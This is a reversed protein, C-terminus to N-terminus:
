DNEAKALNDPVIQYFSQHTPLSKILGFLEDHITWKNSTPDGRLPKPEETINLYELLRSFEEGRIRLGASDSNKLRQIWQYTITKESKDWEKTQNNFTGIAGMWNGAPRGTTADFLLQDQKIHNLAQSRIFQNVAEVQSAMQTKPDDFFGMAQGAKTGLQLMAGMVTNNFFQHKDMLELLSKNGMIYEKKQDLFRQGNNKDVASSLAHALVAPDTTKWDTIGYDDKITKVWAKMNDPPDDLMSQLNSALNANMGMQGPQAQMVDKLYKAANVQQDGNLTRTTGKLAPTLQLGAQNNDINVPENSADDMKILQNRKKRDDESLLSYATIKSTKGARQKNALHEFIADARKNQENADTNQFYQVLLKQLDGKPQFKKGGRQELGRAVLGVNKKISAVVAQPSTFLMQNDHIYQLGKASLHEVNNRFADNGGQVTIGSLLQDIEPKSYVDTFADTNTKYNAVDARQNSDLPNFQWDIIRMNKYMQATDIFNKMHHPKDAWHSNTSGVGLGNEELFAKWLTEDIMTNSIAQRLDKDEAVESWNPEKQLNKIMSTLIAEKPRSKKLRMLFDARGALKKAYRDSSQIDKWYDGSVTPSKRVTAMLQKRGKLEPVIAKFGEKDDGVIQFLRDNDLIQMAADTGAVIGEHTERQLAYQDEALEMRREAIENSKRQSRAIRNNNRRTETLRSAAIKEQSKIGLQAIYTQHARDAAKTAYDFNYQQRRMMAGAASNGLNVIAERLPRQWYEDEHDQYIVQIDGDGM